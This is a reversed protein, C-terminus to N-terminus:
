RNGSPLLPKETVLDIGLEQSTALAQARIMKAAAYVIEMALAENVTEADKLKDTAVKEALRTYILAYEGFHDRVTASKSIELDGRLQATTRKWLGSYIKETGKWYLDSSASLVAAKLASTFQKRTVVGELRAHIWNDDYGSKQYREVTADLIAEPGATAGFEARAKSDRRMLDAFAGSKALFDKIDPLATRNKVLRLNIAIAYLGKDDIFYSNGSGYPYQRVRELFTQMGPAKRANQWARLPDSTGTLGSIWDRISYWQGSDNVVRLPFKWMEAVIVPLPREDDGSINIPFSVDNNMPVDGM